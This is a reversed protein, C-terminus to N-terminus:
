GTTHTGPPIAGTMMFRFISDLALPKSTATATVASSRGSNAINTKEVVETMEVDEVESEDNNDDEVEEEEEEEEDDEEEDSDEQPVQLTRRLGTVVKEIGSQIEALTYDAGWKQRHGEESAGIPAWEWLQQLEDGQKDSINPGLIDQAVTEGREFWDDVFPELRTRLLQQLVIEQTRGPFSPLPFAVTSAYLNQHKALQQSM